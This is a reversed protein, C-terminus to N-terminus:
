GEAILVFKEMLSAAIPNAIKRKASILFLEETVGKLPAIEILEGDAIQRFVSHNAAPILGLGDIAMLKKLSIDQTEAVVDMTVQNISAWHEIDQRLKSDFTPL